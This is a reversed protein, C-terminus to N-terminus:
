LFKFNFGVLKKQQHGEETGREVILYYGSFVIM